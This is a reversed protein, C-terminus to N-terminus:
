CRPADGVDQNAGGCNPRQMHASHTLVPVRQAEPLIHLGECLHSCVPLRSPAPRAGTRPLLALHVQPPRICHSLLFPITQLLSRVEHEVGRGDGGGERQAGPRRSSGRRRRNQRPLQSWPLSDVNTFLSLHRRRGMLRSMTTAVVRPVEDM